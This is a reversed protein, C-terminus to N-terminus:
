SAVQSKYRRRAVISGDARRPRRRERESRSADRDELDERRVERVLKDDGNRRLDERGM